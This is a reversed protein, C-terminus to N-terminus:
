ALPHGLEIRFSALWGNHDTLADPDASVDCVTPIQSLVERLRRLGALLEAEPYNRDPTQSSLKWHLQLSGRGTRM